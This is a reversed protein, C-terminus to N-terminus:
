TTKPARNMLYARYGFYLVASLIAAAITFGIIYTLLSGFLMGTATAGPVNRDIQNGVVFAFALLVVLVTVTVVIGGYRILRLRRIDQESMM